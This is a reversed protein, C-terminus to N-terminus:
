SSTNSADQCVTVLPQATMEFGLQAIWTSSSVGWCDLPDRLADM